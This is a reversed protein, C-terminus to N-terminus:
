LDRVSGFPVRKIIIQQMNAITAPVITFEESWNNIKNAARAHPKTVLNAGDFSRGSCV